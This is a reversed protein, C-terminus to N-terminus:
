APLEKHLKQLFTRVRRSGYSLLLDEVESVKFSRLNEEDLRLDLVAEKLSNWNKKHVYVYDALAKLPQAMFFIGRSSLTRAVGKLLPRSPVRTYSFIGMSTKFETSRKLCVSTVAHVAEPILGHYALASELSIYSPGYLRQALEFLDYPEEAVGKSVVYLGRRLQLIDGKAIARKVLGHRKDASGQLLTQLEYDSFVGSKIKEKVLETLKQM